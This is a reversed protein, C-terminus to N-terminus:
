WVTTYEATTLCLQVNQFYAKILSTLVEPVRFYDFATWLLHTVSGFANALVLFVMHLDTGVKKTVQIQHWITSTHELCSGSIGVKQISTDILQNRQLSGAPRHAVVNFLNKGRCESPQDPPVSRNRILVKGKPYPNKWSEALMNTVGPKAMCGEHAELYLAACRTHKQLAQVLSWQPRPSILGKGQAGNEASCEM